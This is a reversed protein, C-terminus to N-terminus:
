NQTPSKLREALMADAVEYAMGALWEAVCIPRSGGSEQWDDIAKDMVRKNAAYGQIAAGAFYDRLSMGENYHATENQRPFPASPMPFAPPNEIKDSM